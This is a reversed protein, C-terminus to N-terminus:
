AINKELFSSYKPHYKMSRGNRRHGMDPFQEHCPYFWGEGDKLVVADSGDLARHINDMCPLSRKGSIVEDIWELYLNYPQGISILFEKTWDSYLFRRAEERYHEIDMSRSINHLTSAKRCITNVANHIMALFLKIQVISPKDVM